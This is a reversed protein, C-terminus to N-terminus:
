SLKPKIYPLYDEKKIRVGNYLLDGNDQIISTDIDKWNNIESPLKEAFVYFTVKSYDKLSPVDWEFDLSGLPWQYNSFGDVTVEEGAEKYTTDSVTVEGFLMENIYYKGLDFMIEKNKPYILTFSRTGTGTLIASDKSTLDMVASDISLDGNDNYNQIYTPLHILKFSVSLNKPRELEYNLEVEDGASITLPRSFSSYKDKIFYIKGNVCLPFTTKLEGDQNTSGIYCDNQYNGCYYHVSVDPLSEKTYSDVTHVTINGSLRQENDCFYTKPLLTLNVAELAASLNLDLSSRGTGVRPQNGILVAEMPFQFVFGGEEEFYPTFPDVKASKYETIKILVPYNVSYKFAYRNICFLKNLFPIGSETFRDSFVSEGQSPLIDLDMGWDPKYSFNIHISSHNETFFYYVFSEYVGQKFADSSEIRKFNTNEMKMFPYNFELINKLQTKVKSKTWVPYDCDITTARLPPLKAEDVGSYLSILNKTFYELYADVTEHMVLDSAIDHVLRINIPVSFIFKDLSHITIAERVTIPYDVKVTIEKDMTTTTNITGKKIEYGQEIFPTFNGLCGELERNVYGSLQEEMFSLSPLLMESDTLWYVANNTNNGKIVKKAGDIVAVEKNDIEDKVELYRRQSPIDIYGGQLRLIEIGNLAVDKICNDIYLKFSLQDLPTAIKEEIEVDLQKEITRSRINIIIAVAILLVFVLIIFISIQAKKSKYKNIM